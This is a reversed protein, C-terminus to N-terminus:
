KIRVRAEEILSLDAHKRVDITDKLFGLERLLDVNRQLAEMNPVANPDRYTDQGTLLWPRLDEPKKKIFRAIIGIAEERNKPDMYWHLSRITDELFDVVAARHQALFDARGAWFIMDSIGVAERQTFLTRLGGRSTAEHYFPQIFSAAAVKGERLMAEMAPFRAEVITVDRKDELGHKRLMARAAVDVAGGIANTALTKGRLDAVTRIPADTKVMYNTTFYGPVGDQFMDAVVKIDMKANQITLGLSSYALAAFELDRSALAGIQPTSGQFNIAEFVYSTGLHRAIDKKEFLLPTFQAPAVVWGVRIRVPEGASAHAALVLILLALLTVHRCRQTQM